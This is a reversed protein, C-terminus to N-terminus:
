QRGSVPEGGQDPQEDGGHRNMDVLRCRREGGQREIRGGPQAEHGDDLVGVEDM